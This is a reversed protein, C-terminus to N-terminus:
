LLLGCDTAIGFVQFLLKTITPILFLLAAMILRTRLHGTAKKMTDDDSNIIAKTFDIGSLVVVALPGLVRMYNLIQFLLWAVSDKDNVPDGLLSNCSDADQKYVNNSKVSNIYENVDQGNSTLVYGNTYAYTNKPIMILIGIVLIFLIFSVNKM